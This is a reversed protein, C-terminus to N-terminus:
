ASIGIGTRIDGGAAYFAHRSRPADCFCHGASDDAAAHAIFFLRRESGGPLVGSFHVGGGGDQRRQLADRTRM